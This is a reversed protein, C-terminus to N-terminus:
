HGAIILCKVVQRWPVATFRLFRKKATVELHHPGGALTTWRRVDAPARSETGDDSVERYQCMALDIEDATAASLLSEFMTPEAYDDGDVFGVWEATTARDPGANATAVGGPSNEPLLVPIFRLIAPRLLRCDKGTDMIQPATM